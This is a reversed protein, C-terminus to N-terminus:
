DNLRKQIELAVNELVKSDQGGRESEESIFLNEGLKYGNRQYWGKKWEWGRRYDERNLM